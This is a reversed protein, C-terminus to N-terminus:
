VVSKRDPLLGLDVGPPLGQARVHWLVRVPALSAFARALADFDAASLMGAFMATSGFAALVAGDRAAAALFDSVHPLSALPHAPRPTGAGVLVQACLHLPPPQVRQCPSCHLLSHTRM